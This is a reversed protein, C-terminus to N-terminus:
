EAGPVEEAPAVVARAVVGVLGEELHDRRWPGERANGEVVEHVHPVDERLNQETGRGSPGQPRVRMGEAQRLRIIEPIAPAASEIVLTEPEYAARAAPGPVQGPEKVDAHVVM